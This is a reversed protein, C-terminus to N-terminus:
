HFEVAPADVLLQCATLMPLDSSASTLVRLVTSSSSRRRNVDASGDDCMAEGSGACQPASAVKNLNVSLRTMCQSQAQPLDDFPEVVFWFQTTSRGTCKQKVHGVKTFRRQKM